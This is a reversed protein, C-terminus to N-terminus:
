KKNEQDKLFALMLILQRKSEENLKEFDQAFRLTELSIDAYDAQMMQFERYQSNITEEEEESLFDSYGMLYAESCNLAKAFRQVKETTINANHLEAKSVAQRSVGLIEALDGQSLELEERRKKIREGVTM